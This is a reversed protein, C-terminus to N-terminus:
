DEKSILELAEANNLKQPENKQYGKIQPDFRCINKYRCYDCENPVPNAAAYGNLIRASAKIIKEYAFKIVKDFEKESLLNSTKKQSSIKVLSDNQNTSLSNIVAEDSLVLGNLQTQKLLLKDITHEDDAPTEIQPDIMPFYLLCAPSLKTQKSIIYMYVPLQLNLGAYIDALSLTKASSKYDIISIYEKDLLKLLDIRDIRGKIIIFDYLSDGTDSIRVKQPPIVYEVNKINFKDQKLQSITLKSANYAIKKIRKFKYDIQKSSARLYALRKDIFDESDIIDDIALKLKEDTDFYGAGNSNVLYAFKEMYGHLLSGIDLYELKPEKKEAPKIGYDMLHKFGCKYFSEIRSVSSSLPLKYLKPIHDKKITEPTYSYYLAEIYKESIKRYNKDSLFYKAASLSGPDFRNITKEDRLDAFLKEFAPKKLIPLDGYGIKTDTILDAKEFLAKIQKLYVSMSCQVGSIDTLPYTFTLSEKAGSIIHYLSMNEIDLNHPISLPLYPLEFASLQSKEDDTLLSNGAAVAPISVDTMGIVFVAKAGYYRLRAIDGFIVQDNTPPITRISQYALGEYLLNIFEDLNMVTENLIVGLQELTDNVAKWSLSAISAEKFFKNEILGNVFNDINEKIGYKDIFDYLANVYNITKNEDTFFKKYKKYVKKVFDAASLITEKQTEPTDKFFKENQTDDSIKASLVNIGWKDIFNEFLAVSDKDINLFGCKLFEIISDSSFNDAFLDMMALVIKATAISAPNVKSDVFIPIDYDAFIKEMAAAYAQANPAFIRIDKYRYHEKAVLKSISKAVYTIETEPNLSQCFAIASLDAAYKEATYSSYNQELYSIDPQKIFNNEFFETETEIGKTNALNILKQFTKYTLNMCSNKQFLDERSVDLDLLINIKAQTDFLKEIVNLQNFDFDFFKDFIFELKKPGCFNSIKESLLALRDDDDTYITGKSLMYDEYFYNIESLKNKLQEDAIKPLAEEIAKPELGSKQFESITKALKKIFGDKNAAKRYVKTKSMNNSLIYKLLMDAGLPSMYETTIGGTESLVENSLRAFSMIKINFVPRDAISVLKKEAELTMQEPVVYYYTKDSNLNSFIHEFLAKTKGCKSRGLFLSLKGM